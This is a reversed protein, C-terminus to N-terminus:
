FPLYDPLYFQLQLTTQRREVHGTFLSNSSFLFLAPDEYFCSKYNIKDISRTIIIRCAYNVLMLSPVALLSPLVQCVKLVVHIDSFKYLFWVSALMFVARKKMKFKEDEHDELQCDPASTYSWIRYVLIKGHRSPITACVDFKNNRVQTLRWTKMRCPTTKDSQKCISAMQIVISRQQINQRVFHNNLLLM